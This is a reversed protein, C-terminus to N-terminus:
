CIQLCECRGPACGQHECVCVCVCGGAHVECDLTMCVEEICVGYEKVLTELFSSQSLTLELARTVRSAVALLQKTTTLATSLLDSYTSQSDGQRLLLPM